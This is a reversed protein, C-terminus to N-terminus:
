DPVIIIMVAITTVGAAIPTSAEKNLFRNIM